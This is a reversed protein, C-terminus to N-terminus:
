TIDNMLRTVSRKPSFRSQRVVVPYVCVMRFNRSSGKTHNRRWLGNEMVVGVSASRDKHMLWMRAHSFNARASTRASNGSKSTAWANPINSM